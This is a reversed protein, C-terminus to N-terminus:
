IQKNIRNVEYKIISVLKEDLQPFSFGTVQARYLDLTNDGYANYTAKEGDEKLIAKCEAKKEIMGILAEITISGKNCANVPGGYDKNALHALFSGATEEDILSLLTKLNSVYIAKEKVVREVYFRLRETYDNEGIVIPFRVAISPVKYDQFIVSEALRKEEAYTFSGRDVMQIPYHYPNFAEETIERGDEYVASSSVMIYKKTQIVDLLQKADNSTYCIMDYVVDFSMGGLKASISEKDLRNFIIRKIQNEFGDNARGRTAITVDHGDKLLQSVLQKGFYRTGGVVLIKM